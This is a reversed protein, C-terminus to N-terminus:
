DDDDYDYRQSRRDYQRWGDQRNRYNHNNWRRSNNYGRPYSYYYDQQYYQQPYSYYYQQPYSQYYRQRPYYYNDDYDYRNNRSGSALAAGLALGVVGAGIAIAADDRHRYYRDNASAPAAVTLAVAGALAAATFKTFIPLVKRRGNQLRFRCDRNPKALNCKPM